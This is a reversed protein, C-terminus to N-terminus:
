STQKNVTLMQSQVLPWIIIASPQIFLKYASWLDNHVLQYIIPALLALAIFFLTTSLNLRRWFAQDRNLKKGWFLYALGRQHCLTLLYFILANISWFLTPYYNTNNVLSLLEFFEILYAACTVVLLIALLSRWYTAWM